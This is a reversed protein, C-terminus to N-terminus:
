SRPKPRYALGNPNRQKSTNSAPEDEPIVTVRRGPRTHLNDLEMRIHEQPIDITIDIGNVELSYNAQEEEEQHLRQLKMKRTLPHSAPPPNTEPNDQLEGMPEQGESQHAAANQHTNYHPISPLSQEQKASTQSTYLSPQFPVGMTQFAQLPNNLTAALQSGPAPTMFHFGQEHLQHTEGTFQTLQHNSPPFPTPKTPGFTNLSAANPQTSNHWSAANPQTSNHLSAANPQTSNHWSAANPQSSNHLSAANPQSSNHDVLTSPLVSSTQLGEEGPNPGLSLGGLARTEAAPNDKVDFPMEVWYRALPKRHRYIHEEVEPDEFEWSPPLKPKYSDKPHQPARKLPSRSRYYNDRPRRDPTQSRRSSSRVLQTGPFPRFNAVSQEQQLPSAGHISRPALRSSGEPRFVTAAPQTPTQGQIQSRESANQSSSNLSPPFPQFSSQRRVGNNM